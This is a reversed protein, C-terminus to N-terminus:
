FPRLVLTLKVFGNVEQTFNSNLLTLKDGTLEAVIYQISSQSGSPQLTLKKQDAAYVWNGTQRASYPYLEQNFEGDKGFTIFFGGDDDETFIQQSGDAREYITKSVKWRSNDLANSAIEETACGSAIVCIAFAIITRM